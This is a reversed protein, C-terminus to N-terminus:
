CIYKGLVNLQVTSSTSGVVNSATCTYLQSDSERINSIVLTDGVLQVRPDGLSMVDEDDENYWNTLPTPDGSTVCLFTATSGILVELLSPSAM